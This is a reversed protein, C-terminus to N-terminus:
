AVPLGISKSVLTTLDRHHKTIKDVGGLKSCAQVGLIKPRYKRCVLFRASPDYRLVFSMNLLIKTISNLDDKSPWDRLFVPSLASETCPKLNDL